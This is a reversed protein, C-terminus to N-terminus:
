SSLHEQTPRSPPRPIGYGALLALAIYVIQMALRVPVSPFQLGGVVKGAGYINAPFIAVMMVAIWFAAARRFRPVFLGIAGAIEFIGTLVVLFPRAPFCPPIISATVAVRFFHLFVGSVLLPLAVVVKLILQTIGFEAYGGRGMWFFALVTVVLLALPIAYHLV